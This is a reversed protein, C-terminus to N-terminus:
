EVEEEPFDEDFDFELKEDCNPCHIFGEDLIAENLEITDSCTPCTVEYCCGGDDDFDEDDECGCGCGCSDDLEYVDKEVLGLDEDIADVQGVLEEYADEIEEVSLCLEDLLEAMANLVKVEKSNADLELGDMLGRLYAAKESIRM